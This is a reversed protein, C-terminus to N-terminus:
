LNESVNKQSNILFIQLPIAQLFLNVARFEFPRLFTKEQCNFSRKISHNLMLSQTPLRSLASLFYFQFFFDMRIVSGNDKHIRRCTILEQWARRFCWFFCFLPFVAIFIWQNTNFNWWITMRKVRSTLFECLCITTDISEIFFIPDLLFCSVAKPSNKWSFFQCIVLNYRILHTSITM